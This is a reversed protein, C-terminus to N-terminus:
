NNMYQNADFKEYFVVTVSVNDNWEKVHVDVHSTNRSKVYPTMGYSKLSSTSLRGSCQVWYAATYASGNSYRPMGKTAKLAPLKFKAREANILKIVRNREAAVQKDSWKRGQKEYVDISLSNTKTKGLRPYANNIKIFVANKDKYVKKLLSNTGNWTNLWESATPWSKGKFPYGFNYSGDYSITPNGVGKTSSTAVILPKLGNAKRKANILRVVEKKGATTNIRPGTAKTNVSLNQTRSASYTGSWKKGNKLKYKVSTTVRYSGAGISVSTKNKSVTKKGKAVTLRSSVIKTTGKKVLVPKITTKKNKLVTKTTITGIKVSPKTVKKAAIIAIENSAAVNVNPAATAPVGGATLSLAIAIGAAARAYRSAKFKEM